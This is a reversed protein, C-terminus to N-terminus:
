GFLGRFFSLIRDFISNGPSGNDSDGVLGPTDGAATDESVPQAATSVGDLVNAADAGPGPVVTRKEVLNNYGPVVTVKIVEIAQRETVAPATGRLTIRVPIKGSVPYVEESGELVLSSSTATKWVGEHNNELVVVTWEPDALGTSLELTEVPSKEGSTAVFSFIFSSEVPTEGGILDGSPSVPITDLGIAASVPGIVMVFAMVLLIGYIRM